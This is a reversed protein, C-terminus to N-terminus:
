DGSLISGHLTELACPVAFSNLLRLFEQIYQREMWMKLRCELFYLNLLCPGVFFIYFEHSPYHASGMEVMSIAVKHDSSQDLQLTAETIDGSTKCSDEVANFTSAHTVAPTIVHKFISDAAKALGYDLM